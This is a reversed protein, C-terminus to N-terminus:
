AASWENSKMKGIEETTFIGGKSPARWLAMKTEEEMEAFCEKATSYQELSLAEKIATVSDINDRVAANHELLSFGKNPKWHLPTAWQPVKPKSKFKKGNDTLELWENPLDYLYRAPGWLVAARKFADSAKGKEAEVQTDGAGNSRWIWEGDIKLGIRCILLAADSNGYECQWNVGMVSDLREMVDRADVYALPIGKTKDQTRAGVRWHLQGEDFPFELAEKIEQWSM